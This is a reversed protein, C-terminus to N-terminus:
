ELLGINKFNENRYENPTCGLQKKFVYFFYEVSSYGCESSIQKTSLDTYCLLNCAHKTRIRNLYTNFSMGLKSKFLRGLHGPSLNFIKSVDSLNLDKKFNKNLHSTVNHLLISSSPTVESESSDHTRIAIILIQELYSSAASNYFPAKQELEQKLSFSLAAIKDTTEKDFHCLIGGSSFTLRDILEKRLSIGTFCINILVSAMRAKVSHSDLYSVLWADGPRAITTTGNYIHEYEGEIVMEFELYDHWHSKVSFDSPHASIRIELYNDILKLSDGDSKLM